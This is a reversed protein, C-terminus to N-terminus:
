PLSRFIPFAKGLGCVFPDSIWIDFQSALCATNNRRVHVCEKEKIRKIQLM